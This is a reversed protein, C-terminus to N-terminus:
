GLKCALRSEIVRWTLRDTHQKKSTKKWNDFIKRNRVRLVILPKPREDTPSDTLRHTPSDFKANGGRGRRSKRREAVISYGWGLNSTQGRHSSQSQKNLAFVFKHIFPVRDENGWSGSFLFFHHCPRLINKKWRPKPLSRLPLSPIQCLVDPAEERGIVESCYILDCSKLKM